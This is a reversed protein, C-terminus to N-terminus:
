KVYFTMGSEIRFGTKIVPNGGERSHCGEDDSYLLTSFRCYPNYRPLPSRHNEPDDLREIAEGEAHHKKEDGCPEGQNKPQHLDDINGM